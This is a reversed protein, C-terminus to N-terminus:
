ELGLSVALDLIEEPSSASRILQIVDRDSLPTTQSPASGTGARRSPQFFIPNEGLRLRIFAEPDLELGEDDYIPEGEPFALRVAGQDDISFTDPHGARIALVATQAASPLGGQRLYADRISDNIVRDAYKQQLGALRKELEQIRQALEADPQTDGADASEQNDSHSRTHLEENGHSGSPQIDNKM